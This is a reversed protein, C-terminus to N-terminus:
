RRPPPNAPIKWTSPSTGRRRPPTPWAPSVPGGPVVRAMAVAREALEAFGAPDVTTSSVIAAQKGLFVRLGLDRGEAREVHETEGLRRAVSLSTGSILVADAADAGAARARAILDSLLTLADMPHSREILREVYEAVASPAPVPLGDAQLGEIHFRIAASIETEVAQVTPGTAICGPLDPVYASYNGGANEIVVAYRM